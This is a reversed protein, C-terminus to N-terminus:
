FQDKKNQSHSNSQQLQLRSWIKATTLVTIFMLTKYFVSNRLLNCSATNWLAFVHPAQGVGFGGVPMQKMMSRKHWAKTIVQFFFAKQIIVTPSGATSIKAENSCFCHYHALLWSDVCVHRWRSIDVQWELHHGVKTFNNGFMRIPQTKDCHQQRSGDRRREFAM